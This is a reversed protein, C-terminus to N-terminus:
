PVHEGAELLDARVMEHGCALVYRGDYADPSKAEVVQHRCDAFRDGAPHCILCRVSEDWKRPWDM